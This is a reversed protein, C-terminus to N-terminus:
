IELNIITEIIDVGGGTQYDDDVEEVNESLDELYEKANSPNEESQFKDFGEKEVLFSTSNKGSKDDVAKGTSDVVKTDLFSTIINNYHILNGIRDKQDKIEEAAKNIQLEIQQTEDIDNGNSDKSKIEKQKFEDRMKNILAIREAKYKDAILRTLDETSLDEYSTLGNAKLYNKLAEEDEKLANIKKLELATVAEFEVEINDFTEEKSVYAKCKEDLQDFNKGKCDEVLKESKKDLEQLEEIEENQILEQSSITTIENISKEDSAKGSQYIGKYAVKVQYGSNSKPTNELKDKVEKVAVLTKRYEKLRSVLGCAIRGDTKNTDSELKVNEITNSSKPVWSPGFMKKCEENNPDSISNNCEYRKCMLSVGLACLQYKAGLYEAGNKFEQESFEKIDKSTNGVSNYEVEKVQKTFFDVIGPIKLGTHSAPLPGQSINQSNNTDKSKLDNSQDSFLCGSNPITTNQCFPKIPKNNQTYRLNELCYKTIDILINKNLQGEYMDFYKEQGVFKKNKTGFDKKSDYDNGHIAMEMRKSLYQRISNASKSSNKDFASLNIDEAFKTLEDNSKKDLEEQICSRITDKKEEGTQGEAKSSCQGLQQSQILQEEVEKEKIATLYAKTEEDISTPILNNNSEAWLLNSFHLLIIFYVKMCKM